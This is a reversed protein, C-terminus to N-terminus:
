QGYDGPNAPPPNADNWGGAPTQSPAYSAPKGYTTPSHTYQERGNRRAELDNWADEAAFLITRIDAASFKGSGLARTVCGTLFIDREKHSIAGVPPTSPQPPTPPTYPPPPPVAPPGNYQQTQGMVILNSYNWSKGNKTKEADFSVATGSAIQPPPGKGFLKWVGQQTNVSIGHGYQTTFADQFTGQYSM